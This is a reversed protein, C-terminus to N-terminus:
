TSYTPRNLHTQFAQNRLNAHLQTSEIEDKIDEPIHNIMFIATSLKDIEEIKGDNNGVTDAISNMHNLAKNIAGMELNTGSSLKSVAATAFNHDKLYAQWISYAENTLKVEVEPSIAGLEISTPPLVTEQNQASEIILQEHGDGLQKQYISHMYQITQNNALATNNDKIGSLLYLRARQM